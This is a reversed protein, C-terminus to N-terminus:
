HGSSLDTFQGDGKVFYSKTAQHHKVSTDVSWHMLLEMGAVPALHTGVNMVNPVSARAAFQYGWAVSLDGPVMTVQTLYKGKGQVNGGYSYIVRYTYDVVNAGYLNKYTVRFVKARPVQWGSLGQWHNAGEPLGHAVDVRVNVVPRNKEVVDWIKKGINLIKDVIVEAETLLDGLGPEGTGEDMIWRVEEEGLYEIQPDSVTFYAVPNKRALYRQEQASLEYASAVPAGEVSVISFLILGASLMM